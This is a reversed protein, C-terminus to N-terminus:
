SGFGLRCSRAPSQRRACDGSLGSVLFSGSLGASGAAIPSGFGVSLVIIAFGTQHGNSGNLM